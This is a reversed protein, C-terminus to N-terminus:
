SLKVIKPAKIKKKRIKKTIKQVPAKKVAQSSNALVTPMYFGLDSDDTDDSGKLEKAVQAMAEHDTM